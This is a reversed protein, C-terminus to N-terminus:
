RPCPAAKQLPRTPLPAPSAAQFPIQGHIGGITMVRDGKKLEEMVQRRQEEQKKRPRYMLFYIMAGFLIFIVIYFILTNDM